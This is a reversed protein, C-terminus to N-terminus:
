RVTPAHQRTPKRPSRPRARVTTTPMTASSATTRSARSAVTRAGPSPPPKNSRPTPTATPRPPKATSATPTCRSCCPSATGPAAPWRPPRYGPTSGSPCPPTACTTPAAPSRAPANAEAPRLAAYYLCAYFVRLRRGREGQSTVADLLAHVQAPNAVVRRDVSEPVAPAQWHIRDLPNSELLGAEVAHALAHRWVARIRRVTTAAAPAGAQTRACTTLVGRIITPDTSVAIPPCAKAIWDLAHAIDAPPNTATPNFAWNRLARRLLVPQPAGRHGGVLAVTVATLAEAVSRRSKPALQPWRAATYGRAHAYWSVTAPVPGAQIPRGTAPDFPRGARAADKLQQQFGDALARTRLSRHHERGAVSWRVRWRGHSTDDLKKIDWFRVLYGSV